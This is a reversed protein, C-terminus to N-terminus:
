GYLAQLVGSSSPSRSRLIQSSLSRGSPIYDEQPQSSSDADPVPVEVCRALRSDLNCGDDTTRPSRVMPYHIGNPIWAAEQLDVYHHAGTIQNVVTIKSHEKGPFVDKFTKEDLKPVRMRLAKQDEFSMKGSPEGSLQPELQQDLPRNWQIDAPSRVYQIKQPYLANVEIIQVTFTSSRSCM